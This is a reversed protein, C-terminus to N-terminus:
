LFGHSTYYTTALLGVFVILVLMWGRILGKVTHGYARGASDFGHNFQRFFWGQPSRGARLFV